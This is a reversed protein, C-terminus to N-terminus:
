DRLERLLYVDRLAISLEEASIAFGKTITEVDENSFLSNLVHDKRHPLIIGKKNWVDDLSMGRENRCVKGILGSQITKIALQKQITEDLDFLVSLCLYYQPDYANSSDMDIKKQLEERLQQKDEQNTDESLYQTLIKNVHHSSEVQRSFKYELHNRLATEHKERENHSNGPFQHAYLRFISYAKRVIGELSSGKIELITDGINKRM